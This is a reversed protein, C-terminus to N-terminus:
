PRTVGAHKWWNTLLTLSRVQIVSYTMHFRKGDPSPEFDVRGLDNTAARVVSAGVMIRFPSGVTADDRIPVAVIAGNDDIYFLERADARWRPSRGRGPSVRVPVGDVPFPRLYVVGDSEFAISRGNPALRLSYTTGELEFLRKPKGTSLEYVWAEAGGTSSGAALVCLLYRGDGSWDELRPVRGDPFESPLTRVVGTAVNIVTIRGGVSDRSMYAIATDTPSWQPYQFLTGSPVSNVLTSNVGRTLDRVPISFGGFAIRRGDHSLRYPGFSRPKNVRTSERLEGDLAVTNLFSEDRGDEIRAFLVGSRAASISTMGGPTGVNELVKVLDGVLRRSRVDIRQAFTLRSSGVPTYLLYDPAAFVAELRPLRVLLSVSDTGIEGLYAAYDTTIVFHKADPFYYPRGGLVQEPLVIGLKECTGTSASTRHLGARRSPTYLISGDVGWTGGSSQPAPCLVQVAGSGLNVTKLQRDAFFGISQGDPSWFPYQAGRTNRVSQSGLSDLSRVILSDGSVVAVRRGEPSASFDRGSTGWTENPGPVLTATIPRGDATTERATLRGIAFAGAAIVVIAGVGFPSGVLARSSRAFSAVGAAGSSPNAYTHNTLADAFGRATDFRDAALKELAKELAAAVNVPVSKRYKTVPEAPEAIIKMIIQQASAGTHPPNGALMEYLVTALSYVDSRGSIEREATAQEPSMYHPTGLSLGTETSRFLM